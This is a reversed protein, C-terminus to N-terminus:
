DKTDKGAAERIIAYLEDIDAATLKDSDLMSNVFLGISGGYVRDLFDEAEILTVSERELLPFFHKARGVTKYDLAGKDRLRYLMVIITNHTWGTDAKLLHELQALTLDRQEWLPTMLKWEGDSLRPRDGDKIKM